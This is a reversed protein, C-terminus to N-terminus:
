LVEWEKLKYIVVLVLSAASAAGYIPLGIKLEKKVGSMGTFTTSGTFQLAIYSSLAPFFVYAAALLMTNRLPAPDFLQVACLVAAMGVLWGKIAFSRFPVWPLLAPTAFAGTFVALLGLLVFPLGNQGASSFLVGAPQLGFLLLMGLALWPYQKMAPNIEMPTLIIRDLLGFRMISMEKTKKRGAALYAPIDRAEVPGFHVRFGTRKQVESASVGVAGLQPLIVRRHEVVAELKAAEIRKVLEDTGFTGKGAACWVNISKTDLVLVWADLGALSRRVIDFTLKYNATVLVESGKTPAGVAYLGPEVTYSMRYAGIRSRIMGLRDARSWATAVRPVAGAPTMVTGTVFPPYSKKVFPLIQMMDGRHM